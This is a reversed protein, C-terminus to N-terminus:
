RGEVTAGKCNEVLQFRILCSRLKIEHRFLGERLNCSGIGFRGQAILWLFWIKRGLGDLPALFSPSERWDM